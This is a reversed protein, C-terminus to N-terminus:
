VIRGDPPVTRNMISGVLVPANEWMTPVNAAETGLIIVPVLGEAVVPQVLVAATGCRPTMGMICSM